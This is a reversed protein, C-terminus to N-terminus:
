RIIEFADELPDKRLMLKRPMETSTATKRDTPGIPTLTKNELSNTGVNIGRPLHYKATMKQLYADAEPIKELPINKVRDIENKSVVLQSRLGAAGKARYIQLWRRVQSYTLGWKRMYKAFTKNNMLLRVRVVELKFEAPFVRPVSVKRNFYEQVNQLLNAPINGYAIYNRLADSLVAIEGNQYNITNEYILCLYALRQSPTLHLRTRHNIKRKSHKKPIIDGHETIRKASIRYGPNIDRKAPKSSAETDNAV